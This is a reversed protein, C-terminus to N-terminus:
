LIAGLWDEIRKARRGTIRKPSLDTLYQNILNIRWLASSIIAGDLGKDRQYERILNGKEEVLRELTIASLELELDTLSKMKEYSDSEPAENDPSILEYDLELRDLYGEINGPTASLLCIKRGYAFYDFEKSISFFFLFNALQKANYYHFEDIIIYDFSTLFKEFINRRDHSNYTSYLGYYFIDPNVVMIIPKKVYDDPDIQLEEAFELPNELLRYLKEGNRLYNRDIDLERILSANVELVRFDLDGDDIFKQVDEVHQHILENTPAIFLINTDQLDFLHFLAAKTKGTGTNYTNIVLDRNKLAEYTRYQHYLLKDVISPFPNTPNVKEYQSKIRIKM